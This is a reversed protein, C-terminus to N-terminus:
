VAPKNEWSKAMDALESGLLLAVQKIDKAFKPLHGKAYVEKEDNLIPQASSIGHADTVFVLYVPLSAVGMLGCVKDHVTKLDRHLIKHEDSVTVQLLVLCQGEGKSGEFLSMPLVTFSDISPFDPPPRGYSQAGFAVLDSMGKDRFAVETREPWEFSDITPGQGQDLLIRATDITRNKLLLQHTRMELFYGRFAQFAPLGQVQVYFQYNADLSKRSYEEVILERLAPTAISVTGKQAGELTDPNMPAFLILLGLNKRLKSITTFDGQRYAEFLTEPSNSALLGRITVAPDEQAFIARPIGGILNFRNILVGENFTKGLAEKVSEMGELNFLERMESESWSPMFLRWAGLEGVRKLRASNPSTVVIHRKGADAAVPEGAGEGIDELHVVSLEKAFLRRLVLADIAGTETIYRDVAYAMGQSIPEYENEKLTINLPTVDVGDPVFLWKEKGNYFVIQKLLVLRLLVYISFFTKGIGKSGCVLVSGRGKTALTWAYEFYKPYCERVMLVKPADAYGLIACSFNLVKTGDLTDMTSFLDKLQLAFPENLPAMRGRKTPPELIPPVRTLM